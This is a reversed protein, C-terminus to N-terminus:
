ERLSQVAANLAQANDALLLVPAEQRAQIFKWYGKFWRGEGKAGPVPRTFAMITVWGKGEMFTTIHYVTQGSILCPRKLQVLGPLPEGAKLGLRANLVSSDPLFDGRLMQERLEHQWAEKVIQPPSLWVWATVAAGILGAALLGSIVVWPNCKEKRLLHVPASPVPFAQEFCSRIKGDFRKIKEGEM